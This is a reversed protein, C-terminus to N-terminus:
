VNYLAGYVARLAALIEGSSLRSTETLFIDVNSLYKSKQASLGTRFIARRRRATADHIRRASM